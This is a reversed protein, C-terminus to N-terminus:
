ILRLHYTLLYTLPKFYMMRMMMSLISYIHKLNITANKKIYSIYIYIIKKVLTLDQNMLMEFLIIETHSTPFLFM